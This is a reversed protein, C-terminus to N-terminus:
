GKWPTATLRLEGKRAAKALPNPELPLDHRDLWGLGALECNLSALDERLNVPLPSGDCGSIFLDTVKNSLVSDLLADQEGASLCLAEAEVWGVSNPAESRLARPCAGECNCMVFTSNRVEGKSDFIPTPRRQQDGLRPVPVKRSSYEVIVVAITALALWNGSLVEPSALWWFFLMAMHIRIRSPDFPEGGTLSYMRALSLALSALLVLIMWWSLGIAVDFILKADYHLGVGEFKSSDTAWNVLSSYGWFWWLGLLAITSFTGIFVFSRLWKRESPLLGSNAFGIVQHGLIPLASVLALMGILSWRTRMWGHPDFVTLTGEGAGLSLTAVWLRLIQEAAIWWIVASVAIVLLVVYGRDRLEQLHSSLGSQRDSALRLSVHEPSEIVRMQM